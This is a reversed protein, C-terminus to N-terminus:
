YIGPIIKKTRSKYGSYSDGFEAILVKEEIGIRYSVAVFVPVFLVLFSFLSNMTCSFGLVVLLIGLYSPHRIREYIGNTKLNASDTIAVDVTFSKGLQL